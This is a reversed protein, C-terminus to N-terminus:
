KRFMQFFGRKRNSKPKRKKGNERKEEPKQRPKQTKRQTKPKVKRQETREPLLLFKDQFTKSIVQENQILDSQKKVQEQLREIQKDKERLQEQLVEIVNDLVGKEQPKINEFQESPFVQKKDKVVAKLEGKKLKRSITRDSVQLLEIVEKRTLYPKM